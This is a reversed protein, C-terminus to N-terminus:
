DQFGEELKISLVQSDVDSGIKRQIFVTFPQDIKWFRKQWEEVFFRTTPIWDKSMIEVDPVRELSGVDSKPLVTLSDHGFFYHIIQEDNVFLRGFEILPLDVIGTEERLERIAGAMPGEGIEIKGGIGTYRNPAFTRDAARKMLILKKPPISDGLFIVTFGNM